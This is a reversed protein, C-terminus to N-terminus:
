CIKRDHRVDAYGGAKGSANAEEVMRRAANNRNVSRRMMVSSFKAATVENGTATISRRLCEWEVSDPRTEASGFGRFSSQLACGWVRKGRALLQRFISYAVRMERHYNSNLYNKAMSIMSARQGTTNGAKSAKVRSRRVSTDGRACRPCATVADDVPASKAVPAEGGCDCLQRGAYSLAVM